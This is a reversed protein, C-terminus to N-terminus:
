GVIVRGLPLGKGGTEREMVDVFLYIAVAIFGFVVAAALRNLITSEQLTAPILLALAIDVLVLLLTYSSPLRLTALTLMVVIVLWTVLWVVVAKSVQDAPIAFWNHNLGLILAAYSGYFGFFVGFVGATVNQGLAAAWITTM